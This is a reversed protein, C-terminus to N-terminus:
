RVIISQWKRNAQTDFQCQEITTAGVHPMTTTPIVFLVQWIFSPDQVYKSSMQAHHQPKLRSTITIDVKVKCKAFNSTTHAYHLLQLVQLIHTFMDDAKSDANTHKMEMDKLHNKSFQKPKM